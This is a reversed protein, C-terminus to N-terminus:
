KVDEKPKLKSTFPLKGGQLTTEAARWPTSPPNAKELKVGDGDKERKVRCNVTLDVPLLRGHAKGKFFVEVRDPKHEHYLLEVREGILAAPAEYLRGNLSVTRDKAVRRRAEKRFHDELNKPATRILELHKAYREFPAAGTSSHIRAHYDQTLWLNFAANLEELTKGEFACLFQGRVTRFYREIKGRGQPTYPPTHVLSIGLSACIRELHKTRFLPGNDVYLKRPLGRTLLAKRFADLWSELRESLYFEGHPILRSHDDIFAILYTKRQKGNVTAMPGHLVDSQWIDNPFEAEFKRRDSKDASKRNSVGEKKLIRYATPLTLITGPSILEKQKMEAIIRAVPAAPKEEKLKVLWHITEDDVVRSKGQDSRADPLLSSLEGGSAEYKQAWRRITSKSIRTRASHPINWKKKSKERVIREREGYDLRVAGAIDCIVSYRFLAIEEKQKGSM